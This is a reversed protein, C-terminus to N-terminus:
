SSRFRLVYLSLMQLFLINMHIHSSPSSVVSHALALAAAAQQRRDTERVRRTEVGDNTQQERMTHTVTHARTAAAIASISVCQKYTPRAENALDNRSKVVFTASIAGEDVDDVEVVGFSFFRLLEDCRMTGAGGGDTTAALLLVSASTSAIGRAATSSSSSGFCFARLADVTVGGGRVAMSDAIINLTKKRSRNTTHANSRVRAAGLPSTFCRLM